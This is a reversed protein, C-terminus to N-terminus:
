AEAVRQDKALEDVIEDVMSKLRELREVGGRTAIYGVLHKRHAESRAGGGKFHHYMFILRPM